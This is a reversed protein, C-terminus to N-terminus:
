DRSKDRLQNLARRMKGLQHHKGEHHNKGRIKYGCSCREHCQAKSGARLSGAKKISDNFNKTREKMSLDIDIYDSQLSELVVNVALDSLTRNIPATKPIAM